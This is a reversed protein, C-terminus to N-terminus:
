EAALFWERASPDPRQRPFGEKGYDYAHGEDDEALMSAEDPVLRVKRSVVAFAEPGLVHTRLDELAGPFVRVRTPWKGYRAFFGDLAACLRIWNKDDGNPM